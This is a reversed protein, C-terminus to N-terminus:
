AGGMHFSAKHSGVCGSPSCVEAETYTSGTLAAHRRFLHLTHRRQMQSVFLTIAGAQLVGTFPSEPIIVAQVLLHTLLPCV